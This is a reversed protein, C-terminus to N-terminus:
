SVPPSVVSHQVPHNVSIAGNNWEVKSDRKEGPLRFGLFSPTVEGASSGKARWLLDVEADQGKKVPVKTAPRSTDKAINLDFSHGAGDLFAVRTLHGQLYCSKGQKAKIFLASGMVNPDGGSNASTLEFTVDSAKCAAPGKLAATATGGFVALAVAAAVGAVALVGLNRLSVLKKM